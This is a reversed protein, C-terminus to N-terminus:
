EDEDKPKRPSLESEEVPLPYIWRVFTIGSSNVEEGDVRLPIPTKSNNLQGMIILCPRSLWTSLDLERGMSRSMVIYKNTGFDGQKHYVPPTIHHFMSLMELFLRRKGRGLGLQSGPSFSDSGMFEQM